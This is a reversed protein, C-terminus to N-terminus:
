VCVSRYIKQLAGVILEFLFHPDPVMGWLVRHPTAVQGLATCTCGEEHGCETQHSGLPEAVPLGDGNDM